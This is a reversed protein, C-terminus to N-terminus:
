NAAFGLSQTTMQGALDDAALSDETASINRALPLLLNIINDNRNGCELTLSFNDVRNFRGYKILGNTVARYRIEPKDSNGDGSVKYVYGNESESGDVKLMMDSRLDKCVIGKSLDKVTDKMVAEKLVFRLSSSCCGDILKCPFTAQRPSEDIPLAGSVVVIRDRIENLRKETGQKSSYSHVTMVSGKLFLGVTIENFFPDMSILEICRGYEEIIQSPNLKM